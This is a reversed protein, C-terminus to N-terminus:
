SATSPKRRLYLVYGWLTGVMVAMDSLIQLLPLYFWGARAVQYNKRISWLLYLALFSWFWWGGGVLEILFLALYRGYITAIKPRWLPISADSQAFATIKTIFTILDSPPRWYVLAQRAFAVTINQARLRRMLEYDESLVLDERFGGVRQFTDKHILLSRSTATFNAATVRSGLQLFYPAIAAELRSHIAGFFFGGVVFAGQEQAVRWLEALWHHDLRCGADTMAIYDGKALTTAQNRAAARTSGLSQVLTIALDPYNAAFDQILPVTQDISGADVIICELGLVSQQRYSELLDVISTEENLVTVILSVPIKKYDLRTSSM